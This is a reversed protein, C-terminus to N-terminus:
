IAETHATVSSDEGHGESKAGDGLEEGETAACASGDDFVGTTSVNSVLEGRVGLNLAGFATLKGVRKLGTLSGGGEGVVWLLNGM